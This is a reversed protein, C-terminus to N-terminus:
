FAERDSTMPADSPKLHQTGSSPLGATAGSSAGDNPSHIHAVM